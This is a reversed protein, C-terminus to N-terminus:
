YSEQQVLVVVLIIEMRCALSIVSAHMLNLEHCIFPAKAGMVSVRRVSIFKGLEVLWLSLLDRIM